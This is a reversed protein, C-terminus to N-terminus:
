KELRPTIYKELTPRNVAGTWSMILKGQRDIVYSSPLDWNNFADLAAGHPDLWVRFTLGFSRVFRSVEDAPEGSEIAILEFGQGGHVRYYAQLEPMETKCPPCWTAWNNVLVVKGRADALSVPRGQLDNLALGPAPQDMVVPPRILGSADLATDQAHVLLPILAAGALFVGATILTLILASRSKPIPTKM